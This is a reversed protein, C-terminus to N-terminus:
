PCLRLKGKIKVVNTNVNYRYEDIKLNGLNTAVYDGYEVTPVCCNNIILEDIEVDPQFSNPQVQRVEDIVDSDPTLGTRVPDNPNYLVSYPINDKYYNNLLFDWGLHYATPSFYSVSPPTTGSAVAGITLFYKSTDDYPWTSGVWTPDNMKLVTVWDTGCDQIKIVEEEDFQGNELGFTQYGVSFAHIETGDFFYNHEYEFRRSQPTGRTLKYQNITIYEDSVSGGLSNFYEIHEFRLYGDDDIFYLGNFIKSLNNLLGELNIMLVTQPSANPRMMDSMGALFMYYTFTGPGLSYDALTPINTYTYDSPDNVQLLVSRFGNVKAKSGSILMDFVDGIYNFDGFGLAASTPISSTFGTTYYATSAYYETAIQKINVDVKFEDPIQLKNEDPSAKVTCSLENFEVKNFDYQLEIQEVGTDCSVTLWIYFYPHTCRIQTLVDYADGTFTIEGDFEKRKGVYYGEREFSSVLDGLVGIGSETSIVDESDYITANTALSDIYVMGYYAFYFITDGGFTTSGGFRYVGSDYIDGGISEFDVKYYQNQILIPASATPITVSFLAYNLGTFSVRLDLDGNGLSNSYEKYGLQVSIAM